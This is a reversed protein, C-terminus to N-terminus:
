SGRRWVCSATWAGMYGDHESGEGAWWCRRVSLAVVNLCVVNRVLSTGDEVGRLGAVRREGM